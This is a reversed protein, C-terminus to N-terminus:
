AKPVGFEDASKTLDDAMTRIMKTQDEVKARAYQMGMEHPIVEHKMGEKIMTQRATLEHGKFLENWKKGMPTNMARSYLWEAWPALKKGAAKVAVGGVQGTMEMMAGESVDKVTRLAEEPLTGPKRTGAAQEALNGAQTGIGYGLAAGAVAGGPLPSAAGITGGVLAGAVQAAPKVYPTSRSALDKAWGAISKPYAIEGVGGGDLWALAPGSLRTLDGAELAELDSMSLKKLDIEGAM